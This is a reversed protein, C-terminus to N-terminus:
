KGGSPGSLARLVEPDVKDSLFRVSGDVMLFQAGGSGPPGGFSDRSRNIGAVPDRLNAPSGWPQFDDNVEGILLTNGRGQETKPSAAQADRSSKRFFYDPTLVRGNGAYHSLAFGWQDFVADTELDPNLLERIPRKFIPANTPDDWPRDFDVREPTTYNLYPLLPIAWGHLPEGSPGIPARRSVEAHVDRCNAFAIALMKLNWRTAEASRPALRSAHLPKPSSLLWGTQRALGMTAYGVAFMLVVTLLISLTWGVRWRRPLRQQGEVSGRFGWRALGEILGVLVVVMVLGTLVGSGNVTVQPLVRRLFAFWGFVLLRVEESAVSLVLLLFVVVVGLLVRKM